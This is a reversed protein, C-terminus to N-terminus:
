IKPTLLFLRHSWPPRSGDTGVFPPSLATRVSTTKPSKTLCSNSEQHSKKVSLRLDTPTFAQKLQEIM